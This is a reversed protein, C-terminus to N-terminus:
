AFGLDGVLPAPAITPGVSTESAGRTTKRFIRLAFSCDKCRHVTPEGIAFIAPAVATM